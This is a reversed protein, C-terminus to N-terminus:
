FEASEALDLIFGLLIFINQIRAAYIPKAAIEPKVQIWEMQEAGALLENSDM